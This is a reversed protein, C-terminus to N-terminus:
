DRAFKNAFNVTLTNSMGVTVSWSTIDARFSVVKALIEHFEKLWSTMEVHFAMWDHHQDTAAQAALQRNATTVAALASSLASSASAEDHISGPPPLQPLPTPAVIM